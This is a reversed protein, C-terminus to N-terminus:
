NTNSPTSSSKADRASKSSISAVGYMMLMKPSKRDVEFSRTVRQWKMLNTLRYKGKPTTLMAEGAVKAKTAEGNQGSQAAKKRRLESV